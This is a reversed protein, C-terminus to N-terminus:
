EDIDEGMVHCLFAVVIQRREDASLPRGSIELTSKFNQLIRRGHTTLESARFRFDKKGANPLELSVSVVTEGRLLEETEREIETRINLLTQYFKSESQDNWDRLHLGTSALALNVWFLTDNEEVGIVTEVVQQAVLSGFRIHRISGNQKAPLSTIWAQLAGSGLSNAAGIQRFERTAFSDLRRQLDLYANSIEAILDDLKAEIEERTEVESLDLLIPLDQFLVQAPDLQATRVLNRFKIAESSLQQTDRCFRPLGQLWRLMSVKLITLPQQNRESEHIHNGFRSFLAQWLREQLTSWEGVEITYHNPATVLETILRGSIPHIAHDGRRITIAKIRSRMVAAILIPIVGQRIVYPRATLTELLMLVPQKGDTQCLDLFQEILDWVRSLLDNDVPRDIGWIENGTERLIGTMVLLSNLAAIEPGHGELQLTADVSNAFIADIIKQAANIQQGTPYRKNLGESNFVPTSPFVTECLESVLKTAQGTSEIYTKIFEEGRTVIWTANSTRPDTLTSIEKELRAQADEILWNLERQIRDRDDQQKLDPDDNLEQLGFLERLVEGLAVLPKEPIAYIVQEHFQLAELAEQLSLKDICLVYVVIGDANDLQKLQMDWPVDQIESAWRYIGTFYRTIARDQNYRRALTFPAPAVQELMRRLQLQTPSTRQLVESLKQEFDIDSGASFTWYGDTQRNLIAKRRRLNELTAKIADQQEEAEAGVAWILLDTTPRVMTADACITIVGLTKILTEGLVDGTIVKDLAHAVGSWIRHSGGVGVDSRIAEAFYDWLAAPRIFYDDDGFHARRLLDILSNPEDVTLFTFMTRENQAVKNSLRTLAFVTLPHLPWSRYITDQIEDASFVSFLRFDWADAVLSDLDPGDLLDRVVGEDTHQISNTILRYAVYPDGTVNHRQFRGEIRSWEQQYNKPLSATYGQLEKHTLLVLHIPHEGSYNCAEAFDQLLAAESSFAQTARAELYRGFEDWLVVIGSYNSHEPLMAAVDQYIHHPPHQAFRDFTVGSTLHTYIQEFLTYADVDSDALSEKLRRISTYKGTTKIAKELAKLTDRYNTEWQEITRIAANFRTQPKLGSLDTEKLARTLARTLATTLDGEDGSLVVPLLKRNLTKNLYTDVARGVEPDVAYIRRMFREMPEALKQQNELLAALAVALLSKGSGYAAHLVHARQTANPDTGHIISDIASVASLTPIYRDIADINRLDYRLHVARQFRPSVTILSDLTKHRISSSM